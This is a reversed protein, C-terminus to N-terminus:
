CLLGKCSGASYMKKAVALVAFRQSVKVVVLILLTMTKEEEANKKKKKKQKCSSDFCVGVVAVALVSDAACKNM